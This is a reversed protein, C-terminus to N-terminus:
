YSIGQTLRIHLIGHSSRFSESVASLPQPDDRPPAEEPQGPEAVAEMPSCSYTLRAHELNEAPVLEVRPRTMERHAHM